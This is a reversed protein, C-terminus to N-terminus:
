SERLFLNANQRPRRGPLHLAGRRLRHSAMTWSRCRRLHRLLRSAALAAPTGMALGAMVLLGAERLVLWMADGPSAGLAMRLGVEPVRRASRYSPLIEPVTVV